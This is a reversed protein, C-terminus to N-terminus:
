MQQLNETSPVQFPNFSQPPPILKPVASQQSKANIFQLYSRPLPTDDAPVKPPENSVSQEASKQAKEPFFWDTNNKDEGMEEDLAESFERQLQNIM